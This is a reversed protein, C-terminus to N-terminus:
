RLGVNYQAFSLQLLFVNNGVRSIFDLICCVGTMRMTYTNPLKLLMCNQLKNSKMIVDDFPFMKRTVPWKHPSNVPGPSKGAYLGSVRLRSTKKSRRIFLRNLPRDHSQHNSVNDRWNHRWRLAIIYSSILGESDYRFAFLNYKVLTMVSRLSVFINDGVKSGCMLVNIVKKLSDSYSVTLNTYYTRM